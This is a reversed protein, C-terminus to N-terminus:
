QFLKYSILFVFNSKPTVKFVYEPFVTANIFLLSPSPIVQINQIRLDLVKTVATVTFHVDVGSLTVFILEEPLKNVLSVGLGEELNVLM